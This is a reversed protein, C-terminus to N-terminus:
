VILLEVVLGIVISYDAPELRIRQIRRAWIRLAVALTSIVSLLILALSQFIFYGTM